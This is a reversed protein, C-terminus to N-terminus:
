VLTDPRASPSVIRAGEEAVGLRACLERVLSPRVTLIFLGPFTAAAERVPAWLGGGAMELPGVEDVLLVEVGAAVAHRIAARGFSLGADSFQFGRARGPRRMAYAMVADTM